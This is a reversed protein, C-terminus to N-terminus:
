NFAGCCHVFFSPRECPPPSSGSDFKLASQSDAMVRLTGLAFGHGSRRRRTALKRARATRPPGTASSGARSNAHLRGPPAPMLRACHRRRRQDHRDRGPAAEHREQGAACSGRQVRGLERRRRARRAGAGLGQRDGQLTDQHGGGGPLGRRPLPDLCRRARPPAAHHVPGHPCERHEPEVGQCVPEGLGGRRAHLSRRGGPLHHRQRGAGPAAEHHAERRPRQRLEPRM